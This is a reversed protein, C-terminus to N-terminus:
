GPIRINGINGTNLTAKFKQVQQRNQADEVRDDKPSTKFRARYARSFYSSSGFGCAVSVDTVSLATQQLLERARDLRVQLYFQSPTCKLHASFLRELQRRTIAVRRALDDIAILDEIHAQMLEVAAIAKPNHLGFRSSIELRQHDSPHRIRGLIIWDSIQTALAQGHQKGILALMMDISATGGACTICRQGIEFLSTGLRTAPYREMFSAHSDWHLAIAESALLDAEALVFAGGDIAGLTAGQSQVRRLWQGMDARYYTLTNFGSIVFVTSVDQAELFSGETPLLMGNTAVVPGGDTSVLHWRYSNPKFHNAIRLPELASLLGLFSFEPLVLFHFAQPEVSQPAANM